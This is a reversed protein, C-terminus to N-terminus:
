AATALTEFRYFAASGSQDPQRLAGTAAHYHCAQRLQADREPLPRKATVTRTLINVRVLNDKAYSGATDQKYLEFDSRNQKVSLLTQIATFTPILPKPRM